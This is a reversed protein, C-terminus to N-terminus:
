GNGDGGKLWTKIMQAAIEPNDSAFQRIDKRLEMSREMELEMVDAGAAAEGNEGLGAAAMMAEMDRREREEQEQQQKRKKRRLLLIVTLLIIFLLLGVGAAIVIWMHEEFFGGPELGPQLGVDHGAYAGSGHNRHQIGGAYLRQPHGVDECPSRKGIEGLQAYPLATQELYLFELIEHQAGKAVLPTEFIQAHGCVEPHCVKVVTAGHRKARAFYPRAHEGRAGDRYYEFRYVDVADVIDVATHQAIM